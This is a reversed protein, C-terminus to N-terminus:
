RSLSNKVPLRSMRVPLRMAMLQSARSVRAATRSFPTSSSMSWRAPRGTLLMTPLMKLPLILVDLLAQLGHKHVDAEVLVGEQMEPVGDWRGM